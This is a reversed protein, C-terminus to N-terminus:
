LSPDREPFLAVKCKTQFFLFSFHRFLFLSRTPLVCVVGNDTTPPAIVDPNQQQLPINQPGLISAGLNGRIPQAPGPGGQPYAQYNPDDSALPVTESPNPPISTTPTAVSSSDLTQRARLAPKFQPAASTLAVLCVLVYVRKFIAAM